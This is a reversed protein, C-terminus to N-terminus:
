LSEGAQMAQTSLSLSMTGGHRGRKREDKKRGKGRWLLKQFWLQNHLDAPLRKGLM